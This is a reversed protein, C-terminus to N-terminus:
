DQQGSGSGANSNNNNSSNNQRGPASSSFSSSSSSPAVGNHFLLRHSDLKYTNTIQTVVKLYLETNRVDVMLDGTEDDV